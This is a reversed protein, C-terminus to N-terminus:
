GTKLVAPGAKANLSSQLSDLSGSHRPARDSNPAKYYKNIHQLTRTELREQGAKDLPKVLKGDLDCFHEGTVRAQARVDFYTKAYQSANLSVDFNLLSLLLKELKGLDSPSTNPFQDVFDVNWVAQDEWVKSALILCSLLFRKWNHPYLRLTSLSQARILYTMGMVLSEPALQGVKHVSYVFKEIEEITPMEGRNNSNLPHRREDLIDFAKKAEPPEQSSDERIMNRTYEAMCRFLEANKPASISSDVFLTSTSNFKHPRLHPPIIKKQLNGYKGGPSATGAASSDTDM